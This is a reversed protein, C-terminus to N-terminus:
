FTLPHIQSKRNCEAMQQNPLAIEIFDGCSPSPAMAVPPDLEREVSCPLPAVSACSRTGGSCPTAFGAYAERMHDCCTAAM